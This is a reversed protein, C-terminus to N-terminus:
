GASPSVTGHRRLTLVGAGGLAVLAMAIGAGLAADGWDFGDVPAPPNLVPTPAPGEVSGSSSQGNAPALSDNLATHDPIVLGSDTPESAAPQGSDSVSGYSAGATAPIALAAVGLV